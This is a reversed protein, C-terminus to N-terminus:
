VNAETDLFSKPIAQSHAIFGFPLLSSRRAGPINNNNNNNGTHQASGSNSSAGILNNNNVNLLSHTTTSYRRTRKHGLPANILNYRLGVDANM